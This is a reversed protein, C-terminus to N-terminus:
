ETRAKPNNEPQLTQKIAELCDLWGCQYDYKGSTLKPNQHQLDVCAKLRAIEADSDACKTLLNGIIDAMYDYHSM